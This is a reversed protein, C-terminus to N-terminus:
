KIKGQRSSYRCWADIIEERLPRPGSYVHTYLWQKEMEVDAEDLLISWARPHDRDGAHWQYSRSKLADKSEFPSDIAWLRVQSLRAQQLLFTMARTGSAVRQSLLHVTARCDVNARHAEYFFGCQMLLGVLSRGSFGEERWPVDTMSCAWPLKKFCPLRIEAFRRDFAANHAIVIDVGELFASIQEDDLSKGAVMEDSIGTLTVIEPPISRGPDEFMDMEELISGIQGATDFSFKCMGLEIIKDVGAQLGTTELDIVVGTRKAEHLDEYKPVDLLRRLIRFDGTAELQSVMSEMMKPDSM